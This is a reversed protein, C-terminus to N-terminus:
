KKVEEERVPGLGLKQLEPEIKARDGVAVVFMHAPDLYKQAARHVDAANVADIAPPLKEFYDAPLGYVHLSGFTGALQDMTQFHGVLSQSYNDKALKLEEASIESDRIRNLESFIEHTAPGTADTRISGGAWFYGAGRRFDFVSRAGYTYGHKERLNMNLRSSFLGGLVTNMVTLPVYDPTNRTTGLGVALLATQPSGPRDALYVAPSPPAPTAPVTATFSEGKWAGFYKEAFAHAQAESLDGALVLAAGAPVFTKKWLGTLDERGIAKNAAETGMTPYGYPSDGYLVHGIIKVALVRPSDKQQLLTTIRSTRVREIEDAPFAPQLAADAFLSFAADANKTLTELGVSSADDDTTSSVNAGLEEVAAAFELSTMKTTGETLMDATFSALGPLDKPDALQGPRVWMTFAVTPLKHDELLLVTLGNPLKAITPRPLKVRLIEKSVPARNLREVKSTPVSKDQARAAPAGCALAMVTAVAALQAARMAL